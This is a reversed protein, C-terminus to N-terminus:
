SGLVPGRIAFVAGGPDNLSGIRGHKPVTHVFAMSGGLPKACELTANCDDVAFISNWRPSVEWDRGIQLLGGEQVDGRKFVTYTAFPEFSTDVATWGFLSGYFERADAVINTLLEIWWLSGVEDTLQAGQHPAPQWLGFMAGEPDRLTALRALGPVDAKDVLTAGLSIADATTREVGEVSIHPVWLDNGHAVEQLGAVTKGGSQLLRHGPAGSVKEATWGVLAGYFGVARELDRTRLVATCFSGPIHTTIDM